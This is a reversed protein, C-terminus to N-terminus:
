QGFIQELLVHGIYATYLFHRENLLYVVLLIELLLPCIPSVFHMWAHSFVINEVKLHKSQSVM